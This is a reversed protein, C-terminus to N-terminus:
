QFDDLFSSLFINMEIEERAIFDDLRSKAVESQFPYLESDFYMTIVLNDGDIKNEEKLNNNLFKLQDSSLYSVTYEIFYEEEYIVGFNSIKVIMLNGWSIKLNMPFIKLNM